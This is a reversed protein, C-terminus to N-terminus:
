RRKYVQKALLIEGISLNFWYQFKLMSLKKRRLKFCLCACVLSLSGVLFGVGFKIRILRIEMALQM